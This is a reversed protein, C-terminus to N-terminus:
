SCVTNHADELALQFEKLSRQSLAYRVTEKIQQTPFKLATWRFTAAKGDPLWTARLPNSIVDGNADTYNLDTFVTPPGPNSEDLFNWYPLAVDLLMEFRSVLRRNFPLFSPTSYAELNNPEGVDGAIKSFDASNMAKNFADRLQHIETSELDDINRRAGMDMRMPRLGMNDMATIFHVCLSSLSLVLVVLTLM